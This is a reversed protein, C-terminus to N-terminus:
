VWDWVSGGDAPSGHVCASDGHQQQHGGSGAALFDDLDDCSDADEPDWAADSSGDAEAAACNAAGSDAEPGTCAAMAATSSDAEPGTCAAAATAAASTGCEAPNSRQCQQASPGPQTNSQLALTAQVSRRLQRLVVADNDTMTVQPWWM